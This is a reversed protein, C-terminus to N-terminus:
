CLSSTDWLSALCSKIFASALDSVEAASCKILGSSYPVPKAACVVHLGTYYNQSHPALGSQSSCCIQRKYLPDMPLKRGTFGVLWLSLSYQDM